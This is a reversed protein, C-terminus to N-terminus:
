ARFPAGGAVVLAALSGLVAAVRTILGRMRFVEEGDGLHPVFRAKGTPITPSMSHPTCSLRTRCCCAYRQTAGLAQFM